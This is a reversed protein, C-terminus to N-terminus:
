VTGHYLIIDELKIYYDRTQKENKQKIKSFLYVVGIIESYRWLSTVSTIAIVMIIFKNAM